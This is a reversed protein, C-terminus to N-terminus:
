DSTLKQAFQNRARMGLFLRLEGTIAAPLQSTNGDLQTLVHEGLLARLDAAIAAYNTKRQREIRMLLSGRIGSLTFATAANDCFDVTRVPNTNVYACCADCNRVHKWVRQRMVPMLEHDAYLNLLFRSPHSRFCLDMAARISRMSIRM